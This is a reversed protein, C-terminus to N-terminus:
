FGFTAIFPFIAYVCFAGSVGALEHQFMEGVPMSLVAGLLALAVVLLHVCMWMVIWIRAAPIPSQKGFAYMEFERNTLFRVLVQMIMLMALASVTYASAILLPAIAVIRRQKWSSASKLWRSLVYYVFAACVLFLCVHAIILSFM